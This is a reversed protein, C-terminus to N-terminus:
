GLVRAVLSLNKYDLNLSWGMLYGVVFIYKGLYIWRVRCKAPSNPFRIAPVLLQGLLVGTLLKTEQIPPNMSKNM